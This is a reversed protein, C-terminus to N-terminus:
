KLPIFTNHKLISLVSFCKALYYTKLGRSYLLLAEYTCYVIVADSTKLKEWHSKAPEKDEWNIYRVLSGIHDRYLPLNRLLRSRWKKLDEHKFDGEELLASNDYLKYKYYASQKSYYLDIVLYYNLTHFLYRVECVELGLDYLIDDVTSVRDNRKAYLLTPVLKQEHCHRLFSMIKDAYPSFQEDLCFPSWTGNSRVAEMGPQQLFLSWGNLVDPCREQLLTEFYPAETLAKM